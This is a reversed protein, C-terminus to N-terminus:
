KAWNWSLPNQQKLKIIDAIYEERRDKNKIYMLQRLTLGKWSM